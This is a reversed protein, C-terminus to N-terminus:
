QAMPNFFNFICGIDDNQVDQIDAKKVVFADRLHPLRGINRHLVRESLPIPFMRGLRVASCCFGNQVGVVWM